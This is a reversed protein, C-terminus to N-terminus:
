RNGLQYDMGVIISTATTDYFDIDSDDDVYIINAIASWRQSQTPLRYLLTTGLLVTTSDQFEGYIPNKSDFDSGGIEGTLIVILPNAFYAYSLQLWYRNNSVAGGDLDNNRYGLQPRLLHRPALQWTYTVETAYKSGNRNLLRQDATTLRAQTVLFDGSRENAIDIDRVTFLLEFSSGMIDEWELRFGPADRHTERRPSGELFPDEWVEASADTLVLAASLLGVNPYERRVGLLKALDFTVLNEVSSGLFLQTRQEAFTYNIEGTLVAYTEASSSRPADLVSSITAHSIDVLGNGTVLNSEFDINGVGFLVNGGWGSTNPLKLAKFEEEDPLDDVALVAGSSIFVAVLLVFQVITTRCTMQIKFKPYPLVNEYVEEYCNVTNIRINM